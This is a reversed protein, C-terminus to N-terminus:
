KPDRLQHESAPSTSGLCGAIRGAIKELMEHRRRYLARNKAAITEMPRNVPVLVLEYWGDGTPQGAHEQWIQDYNLHMGAVKANGFYPHRHHRYDDAVCLIRKVELHHMLFQFTKILFDRSRMGQLDKAMERYKALASDVNSGQVSGVYAVRQGEIVGFSFALSMMREEHLFLNFVLSGERLCWPARDVVLRLGSSIDELDVILVSASVSVDLAAMDSALAQKHESLAEFRRLMPWDSRIYPWVVFGLSKPLTAVEQAILQHEDRELLERLTSRAKLYTLFFWLKNKVTRPALGPHMVQAAKWLAAATLRSSILKM